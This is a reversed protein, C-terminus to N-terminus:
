ESHEIPRNILHNDLTKFCRMTLRFNRARMAHRKSIAALAFVDDASTENRLSELRVVSNVYGGPRTARAIM